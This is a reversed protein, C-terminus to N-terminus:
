RDIKTEGFISNKSTKSRHLFKIKEECKKGDPNERAKQYLYYKGQFNEAQPAYHTVSYTM